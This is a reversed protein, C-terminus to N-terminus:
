FSGGDIAGVVGSGSGTTISITIEQDSTLNVTVETTEELEVPERTIFYCNGCLWTQENTADYLEWFHVSEPQTAQTDTLSFEISSAGVTLGAGDLLQIANTSAYQDTKINLQFTIGAISYAVEEADIFSLTKAVSARNKRFYLDLRGASDTIVQAM